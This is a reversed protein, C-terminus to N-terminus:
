PASTAAILQRAGSWPQAPSFLFGQALRCGLATLVRRQADDEVGEAVIELGLAHGLRIIGRVLTEHDKREGLGAIFSRDIKIQRIPLRSLYALSSYGTGFDDLSLKVGLAALAELRAVVSDTDDVLLSETIELTLRGPDVGDLLAALGPAFQEDALQRASVNVAVDVTSRRLREVAHQLVRWGLPVILGCDEALPVFEGPPLLGLEPHRWRVLAELGVPRGDPLTVIPQYHVVLEDRELARHLATVRSLRTAASQVPLASEYAVTGRGTQKARYMADDAGRMVDGMEDATRAVAVGVSATVYITTGDIEFPESLADRVRAVAAAVDDDGEVDEILVVFEDGGLRAVTDSARLRAALRQAIQVLLRDGAEHGLGDNVLKFRDLDLFLVAVASESREARALAHALRDHFVVRKPLGTLEDHFARHELEARSHAQEIAVAALAVLREVAARQPERPETGDALAFDMWGAVVGRHPLEIPMSLAGAPPRERAQGERVLQVTCRAGEVHAEAMRAITAIVLDLPEAWAIMEFVRSEGALLEEVRKRESVDRVNLVIGEILPDDLQNTATVECWRTSADRRRIRLDARAPADPPAVLVTEWLRAAVHLDDELFIRSLGTRGVLEDVQYGTLEEIGDSTFLVRGEPSVIAVTDAGAALLRRLREQSRGHAATAEDRDASAGDVVRVIFVVAVAMLAAVGHSHGKSLVSPVLGLQVGVEGLALGAVSWAAAPRTARRGDLTIDHAAAFAFGIGLVPGWGTVYTMATVTLQHLAIRRHLLAPRTTDLKALSASVALGVLLVGVLVPVPVPALVHTLRLTVLAAITLAGILALEKFGIEVHREV